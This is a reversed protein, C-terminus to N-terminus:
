PFIRFTHLLINQFKDNKEEFINFNIGYQLLIMLIDDKYFVSIFIAKTKKYQVKIKM